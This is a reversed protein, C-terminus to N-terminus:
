ELKYSFEFIEYKEPFKHVESGEWLQPLASRFRDTGGVLKHVEGGGEGLKPPAFHVLEKKRRIEKFFLLFIKFMNM